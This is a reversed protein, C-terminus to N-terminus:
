FICFITHLYLFAVGAAKPRRRRGEAAKPRGIFIVFLVVEVCGGVLWGNVEIPLHTLQYTAENSLSPNVSHPLLIFICVGLTQQYSHPTAM